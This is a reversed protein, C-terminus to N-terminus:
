DPALGSATAATRDFCQRGIGHAWHPDRSAYDGPPQLATDTSFRACLEYTRPGTAAYEYPAGSVPDAISPPLGRCWRGESGPAAGGMRGLKGDVPM